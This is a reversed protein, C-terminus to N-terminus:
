TNSMQIREELGCFFYAACVATGPSLPFTAEFISTILLTAICLYPYLHRYDVRKIRRIVFKILYIYLPLYALLGFLGLNAYVYVIFNDISLLQKKLSLNAGIPDALIINEWAESINTLRGSSLDDIDSTDKNAFFSTYAYETISVNLMSAVIAFLIVAVISIMFIKLFSVQKSSRRILLTVALLFGVLTSRNRFTLLCIILLFASFGALYKPILKDQGIFLAISIIAATGLIAGSSNKLAVVYMDQIVFGGTSRVNLLGMILAFAVFTLQCLFVDKDSINKKAFGMLFFAFPLVFHPLIGTINEQYILFILTCIILVYLIYNKMSRFIHKNINKKNAVVGVVVCLLMLNSAIDYLPTYLVGPMYSVSVLALLLYCLFSNINM